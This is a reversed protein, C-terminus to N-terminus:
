AALASGVLAALAVRAVDVPVDFVEAIDRATVGGLVDVLDDLVDLLEDRPVLRAAVERDVAAEDRAVVAAWQSPMGSFAAGGGREDHVLEHALVANREVQTLDPDLFIVAFEGDTAYLGGGARRAIPDMHLDIHRRGRLARWPNWRGGGTM